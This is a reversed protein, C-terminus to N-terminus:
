ELSHEHISIRHVVDYCLALFKRGRMGVGEDFMGEAHVGPFQHFIDILTELLFVILLKDGHDILPLKETENPAAM